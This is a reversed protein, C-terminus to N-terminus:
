SSLSEVCTKPAARSATSGDKEQIQQYIQILREAVKTTTLGQAILQERGNSRSASNLVGRIARALVEADYSCVSGPRTMRLREEVDGCMVSVVPLNCAMAEKVINPSGEHLSTVLLCDAANLMLQVDAHTAKSIVHLFIDPVTQAVIDVTERALVPNKSNQNDDKSGNFLVVKSRKNWGLKDRCEDRAMPRFLITDVGNPLVRAKHRLGIPLAEYLNNSKVIVAAARRAAWLGIRRGGVERIRWGV